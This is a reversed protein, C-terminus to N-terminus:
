IKKEKYLIFEGFGHTDSFIFQKGINYYYWIEYANSFQEYPRLEIFDPQGYRMYIKARDSKYGKDGKSFNKICYDIRLFYEQEGENYDTTPIPDHQKFFAKWASERKTPQVQILKKLEENTAIYILRNVMEFYENDSYFLSNKIFFTDNIKFITKNNIDYGIITIQYQGPGANPISTLPYSFNLNTKSLNISEQKFTLLEKLIVSKQKNKINRGFNQEGFTKVIFLSCSKITSSYIEMFLNLTESRILETSYIRTPNLIHNKYFRIRSFIKPITFEFQERGTNHSNLDIFEIKAFLKTKNIEHSLSFVLNISDLQLRELSKTDEYKDLLLERTFSKGTVLENRNWVQLLIQYQSSFKDEKKVFYLNPYPVEYFYHFLFTSDNQKTVLYDFPFSINGSLPTSLSSIAIILIFIM